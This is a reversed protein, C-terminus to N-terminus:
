RNRGVPQCQEALIAVAEATDVTLGWKSKVELWTRIYLCRNRSPMWEAPDYDSKQINELEDLVFLNSIDIYFAHRRQEDWLWGGSQFAEGVAVLHDRNPRAQCVPEQFRSYFAWRCRSTRWRLERDVSAPWGVEWLGRDFRGGGEEEVKVSGGFPELRVELVSQYAARLAVAGEARSLGEPFVRNWVAGLQRGSLEREPQFAGDPYGLWWGRGAGFGIDARVRQDSASLDFFGGAGGAALAAASVGAVALVGVIVARVASWFRREGMM